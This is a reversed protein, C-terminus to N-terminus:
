RHAVGAAAPPALIDRARGAADASGAGASVAFRDPNRARQAGRFHSTTKRTRTTKPKCISSPPAAAPPPRYRNRAIRFPMSSDTPLFPPHQPSFQCAHMFTHFVARFALEPMTPLIATARGTVQLPVDRYLTALFLWGM